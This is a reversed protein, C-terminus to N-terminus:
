TPPNPQSCLGGRTVSQGAQSSNATMRRLLAEDDAETGGISLFASALAGLM